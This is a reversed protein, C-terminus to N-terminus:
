FSFMWEMKFTTKTTISFFFIHSHQQLSTKTETSFIDSHQQLTTKTKVSFIDSHQQLTTKTKVSFIDSHQQLTTKTKISFFIFVLICRNLAVLAIVSSAARGVFWLGVTQTLWGAVIWVLPKACNSVFLTM